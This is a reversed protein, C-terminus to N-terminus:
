LLSKARIRHSLSQMRTIGGADPHARTQARSAAYCTRVCHKFTLDAECCSQDTFRNIPFRHSLSQALVVVDGVHCLLVVAAAAMGKGGDVSGNRQTPLTCGDIINRSNLHLGVLRGDIDGSVMLWFCCELTLEAQGIDHAMRKPM